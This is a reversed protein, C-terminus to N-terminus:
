LSPPSPPIRVWPQTEGVCAKWAHEKFWESVEGCSFACLLTAFELHHPLGFLRVVSCCAGIAPSVVGGSTQLVKKPRESTTCNACGQSQINTLDRFLGNPVKCNARLLIRRLYGRM